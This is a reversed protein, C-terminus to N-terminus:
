AYYNLILGGFRIEDGNKIPSPQGPLLKNHNLYSFNASGLDELNVEGNLVVLRAHRRSVGREVGGYLTTDIDPFISSVPDARGIMVETKGSPIPITVNSGQVTFSGTITIQPATSVSVPPISEAPPQAAQGAAVAQPPPPSSVGVPPLQIGCDNCFVEGPMYPAGCNPCTVAAPAAASAPPPEGVPAGPVLAPPEISSAAGGPIEGPPQPAPQPPPVNKPLPSGCIDCFTATDDVSQNCSPCIIPM